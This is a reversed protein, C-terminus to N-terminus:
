QIILSKIQWISREYYRKAQLEPRADFPYMVMMPGRERVSLLKGDIRYAVIVDYQRADEVPLTAAYDNLATARIHTGTAGLHALLDRLLVGQYTHPERTWPAHTTFSYQPLEELMAVTLPLSKGPEVGRVHGSVQVAPVPGPSQALAVPGGGAGALLCGLVVVARCEHFRARLGPLVALFSM